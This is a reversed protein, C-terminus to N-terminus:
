MFAFETYRDGRKVEGEEERRLCWTSGALEREFLSIARRMNAMISAIRAEVLKMEDALINAIKNGVIELYKEAQSTFFSASM